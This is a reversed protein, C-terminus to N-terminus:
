WQAKLQELREVISHNPHAAPVADPSHDRACTSPTGAARHLATCKFNDRLNFDCGRDLLLRACSASGAADMLSGDSCALVLTLVAVRESSRHLISSVRWTCHQAVLPMLMPAQMWCCGWARRAAVSVRTIFPLVARCTRSTLAPVAPYSFRLRRRTARDVRWGTHHHSRARHHPASMLPTNCM